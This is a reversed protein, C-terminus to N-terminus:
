RVAEAQAWLAAMEPNRLAEAKAADYLNVYVPNTWTRQTPRLDAYGPQAEIYDSLRYYFEDEAREATLRATIANRLEVAEEGLIALSRDDFPHKRAMETPHDVWQQEVQRLWATRRAKRAREAEREEAKSEYDGYIDM